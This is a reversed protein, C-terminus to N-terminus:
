GRGDSTDKDKSGISLYSRLLTLLTIGSDIARLVDDDSADYGHVIRNRIQNFALLVDTITSPFGHTRLYKAMVALSSGYRPGDESTAALVEWLARELDASLLMLAARPSVAAEDLVARVERDTGLAASAEVTRAYTRTTDASATPPPIVPAAEAAQDTKSKLQDLQESLEIEQGLLKGKKLRRALDPIVHRINWLLYLMVLPILAQGVSKVLEAVATILATWENM